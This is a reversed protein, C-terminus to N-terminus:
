EDGFEFNLENESNPSYSKCGTIPSFVGLEKCNEIMHDRIECNRRRACVGHTCLSIADEIDKSVNADDLMAMGRRYIINAM